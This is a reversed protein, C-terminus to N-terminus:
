RKIVIAANNMWAIMHIQGALEFDTKSLAYGDHPPDPERGRGDCTRRALAMFYQVPDKMDFGQSYAARMQGFSTCLDECIFIGGSRLAPFLVRFALIQHMWIHSADDIVFDWTQRALMNLFSVNGVDGVHPHFGEDRLKMASPKNDAVHIEAGKPFYRKWMRLSAGINDDPGAGLELIRTAGQQRLRSLFFDYRKLLGECSERQRGPPVWSSAKNTNSEVGFRDLENLDAFFSM